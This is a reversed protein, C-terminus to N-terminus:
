PRAYVTIGAVELAVIFDGDDMGSGSCPWPTSDDIESNSYPDQFAIALYCSGNQPMVLTATLMIFNHNPPFTDELDDLEQYIWERSNVVKGNSADILYIGFINRDTYDVEDTDGGLNDHFYVRIALQVLAVDQGNFVYGTLNIFFKQDSDSTWDDAYKGYADNSDGINGCNMDETVFLFEPYGNGDVDASFLYPDYSAETISYYGMDEADLYIIVKSANGDLKFEGSSTHTGSYLWWYGLASDGIYTTGRYTLELNSNPVYGIIKIRYTIKGEYDISGRWDYDYEYLHFTYSENDNKEHYYVYSNNYFYAKVTSNDIGEVLIDIPVEGTIMINYRPPGVKSKSWEPDYGIYINNYQIYLGSEYKWRWDWYWYGLGTIRIDPESSSSKIVAYRILATVGDGGPTIRSMGTGPNDPTAPQIQSEKITIDTRNGLTSIDLSVPTVIVARAKEAITTVGIERVDIINGKATVVNCVDEAGENILSTINLKIYGGPEIRIVKQEANITINASDIIVSPDTATYYYLDLVISCAGENNSLTIFSVDIPVPGENLITLINNSVNAVAREMQRLEEYTSRVNYTSIMSQATSLYLMLLPVVGVIILLIIITGAIVTSIGRKKRPRSRTVHM